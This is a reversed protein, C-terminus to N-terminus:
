SQEPTLLLIINVTRCVPEIDEVIVYSFKDGLLSKLYEGKSTSRVTGVVNYGREVLLSCTAAAVFGNSGTVLLKAPASIAPM